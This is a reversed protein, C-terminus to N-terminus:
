AMRSILEPFGAALSKVADPWDQDNVAAARETDAMAVNTTLFRDAKLVDLPYTTAVLVQGLLTDPYLAIPSTMADLTADDLLGSPDVEASVETAAVTSNEALGTGQWALSAGLMAAILGVKQTPSTSM